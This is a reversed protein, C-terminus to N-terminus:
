GIAQEGRGQVKKPRSGKGGNNSDISRGKSPERGILKEVKSKRKQFCEVKCTEKEKRVGEELTNPSGVGWNVFSYKSARRTWQSIHTGQSAGRKINPQTELCNSESVSISLPQEYRLSNGGVVGDGGGVEEVVGQGSAQSEAKYSLETGVIEKHGGRHEVGEIVNRLVDEIGLWM